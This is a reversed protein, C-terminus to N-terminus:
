YDVKKTGQESGVAMVTKFRLAINVVGVVIPYWASEILAPFEVITLELLAGLVAIANFWVTMSTWWPKKPVHSTMGLSM